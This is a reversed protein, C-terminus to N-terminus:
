TSLWDDTLQRVVGQLVCHMYDPTFGWIIIFHHINILPTVGKAGQVPRGAEAAEIMIKTGEATRDPAITDVPYKVTGDVAAGPHLCRGCGYYGNFQTLHQMAARAPADARCSFCYVKSHVTENGAKWTIGNTSLGDMQEVFTNLLLTMYPHKQDYLLASVLVNKQRIHVPLENVMVQIPWVSFKSSKFVPSGDSNVTLTIDNKLTLKHSLTRYLTGDTIDTM